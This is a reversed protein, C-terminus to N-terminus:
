HEAGAATRSPGGADEIPSLSSIEYAGACRRLYRAYAGVTQAVWGYDRLGLRYVLYYAWLYSRRFVVSASSSPWLASWLTGLREKRHMANRHEQARPDWQSVLEDPMPLPCPVHGPYTQWPVARTEPSFEDLWQHYLRHGLCSDLPAAFVASLFDSDYFPLELEFGNVDIDEFHRALHRRQDNTMLFLHFRRAPEVAPLEALEALVGDLPLRRVLSAVGPAFMRGGVGASHRALYSEVAEAVQGQRLLRVLHEDLYVFGVGVSGGDGAWVEEVPGTLSRSGDESALMRGMMDIFDIAAPDLSATVHKCGLAAAIRGSLVGDHTAVRRHFNVTQVEAGIGRLMSVVCRSDLGGSLFATASRRTGLRDRVAAQFSEHIRRASTDGSQSAVVRDWAWYRHRTLAGGAIQAVEGSHLVHVGAYPSRRALPYGLAALETVARLDMVKPVEECAELIRIATAFVTFREGVWYYVPRVGLKDGVLSLVHRNADYHVACFTGRAQQLVSWDDRDWSDHLARLHESRPGTLSRLLPHGAIM